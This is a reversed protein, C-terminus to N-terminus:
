EHVLADADPDLVVYVRHHDAETREHGDVRWSRNTGGEQEPAVIVTGIPVEDVEDRRIAAVRIPTTKVFSSGTPMGENVPTLWIVRTVIPDPYAPATITAPVGHASFNLGLALARLSGLEM